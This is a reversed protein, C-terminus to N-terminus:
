KNLMNGGQILPQIFIGIDHRSESIGAVADESRFSSTARNM